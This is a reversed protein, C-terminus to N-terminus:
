ATRGADLLAALLAHRPGIGRDVPHDAPDAPDCVPVGGDEHYGDVDEHVQLTTLGAPDNILLVILGHSSVQDRGEVVVRILLSAASRECQGQRSLICFHHIQPAIQNAIDDVRQLRLEVAGVALLHRGHAEARRPWCEVNMAAPAPM